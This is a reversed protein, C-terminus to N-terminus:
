GSGDSLEYTPLLVTSGDLQNYLALGLRAKTITVHEVPWDFASGPQVAPPLTASTADASGASTVTTTAGSGNASGVAVDDVAKGMMPYPVPGGMFGVGYRPDNLRAVATTPAVVDYSGLSVVPALPGYASQVKKGVLTVTWTAGTRQGAVVQFATVYATDSSGDDPAEFEYGSPDLGFGSLLQKVRDIAASSSPADPGPSCSPDVPKGPDSSAASGGSSGTSGPGSQSEPVAIACGYSAISPDFYSMSAVGDPVLQLMPGSGDAPGVTWVGNVLKPDDQLGLTTAVDVATQRSFSQGPDFSWATATAATPSLGSAAFDIRGYGYPMLAIGPRQDGMASTQPAGLPAANTGSGVGQSSLSIVPSAGPTSGSSHGFAYGVSSAAVLGVAVAATVWVASRRDRAVVPHDSTLTEDHTM